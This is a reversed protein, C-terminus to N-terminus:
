KRQPLTCQCCADKQCRWKGARRKPLCNRKSLKAKGTTSIPVPRNNPPERRLILAPLPALPAHNKDRQTRIRNRHQHFLRILRHYQLSSRLPAADLCHFILIFALFQPIYENQLDKSGEVHQERLYTICGAELDWSVHDSSARPRRRRRTYRM